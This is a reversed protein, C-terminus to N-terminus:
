DEEQNYDLTSPVAAAGRFTRPELAQAGERARYVRDARVGAHRDTQGSPWRIEISLAGAADGLGFHLRPDSASQYSGGGFREAVLRRSGAIVTVRAGVADRNSRIGELALTLFHGPKATINHLYVLPENQALVVADIRGDNDLDGVALGRGLHLPRFPEGARESVDSLRGTSTGALLALPMAFPIRPRGDFIHGNATLDDLRGDNNADLFAHGFGLLPRTPGLMGIQATQDAFFGAGLNRFFTTSEGYFNTVALDILGDGDLDGCAVGMGSKYLGDASAAVGSLHGTEEFRFGGRNLFLYNATMDNAVFLDITDDDDLHAAVVGLGRGNPDRFGAQATVDRFTGGDNRFTHDPLSPYDLPMCESDGQSGRRHCRRPNKPDYVFYHCVYLDLDGDGDLDAFAASTPWDRDGGFGAKDTVDEFRGDGRNRYLAYSRWRTVFLDPWGDNDFDGATVGNGYGRGLGAIGARDTVDEFTGDGKNRFLRDGEYAASKAPPFGGAQVVYVDLWGDRDYDFLAVGGCMLEPPPFPTRTHGNDHFFRLGSAQADDRFLPTIAVEGASSRERQNTTDAPLDRVLSALTENSPRLRDELEQPSWLPESGARGEQILSWGRAEIRRGLQEAVCRLEDIHSSADDSMILEAYHERLITAETQKKRFSEGLARHGAEVEIEALRAWANANGPEIDVLAQLALRERERDAGFSALWARLRHVQFPLFWRSNVRAVAQRARGADRTAVALALRALWVPQDDPRRELCADLRRAAEGFQGTWIALNAKGLWVRDDEQDAAALSSKVYDLPFAADELLFLRRLVSAPDPSGSWSDVILERAEQVRGELRLLHERTQRVQLADPGHPGALSTLLAEAPALRGANALIRVRGLVAKAAFPSDLAVRSWAREAAQEHGLAEECAGLLFAAEGWAPRRPALDALRQRASHYLRVGMEGRAQDLERECRRTEAWSLGGWVAAILVLSLVMWLWKWRM